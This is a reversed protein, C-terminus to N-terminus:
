AARALEATLLEVRARLISLEFRQEDIIARDTM